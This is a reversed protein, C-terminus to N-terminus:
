QEIGVFGFYRRFGMAARKGRAHARAREVVIDALIVQESGALRQTLQDLFVLDAADDEPSRGTGALGCEGADNCFTGAGCEHLETRHGLTYCAHTLDDLLRVRALLPGALAGDEEAVLDM